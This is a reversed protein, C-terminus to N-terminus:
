LYTKQLTQASATVGFPIAKGPCDTLRPWAPVGAPPTHQGVPRGQQRPRLHLPAESGWLGSPFPWLGCAGWRVALPLATLASPPPGAKWFTYLRPMFVTNLSGCPFSSHQSSDGGPWSHEPPCHLLQLVPGRLPVDQCASSLLKARNAAPCLQNLSM